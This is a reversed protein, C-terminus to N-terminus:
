FKTEEIKDLQKFQWIYEASEAASAASEAASAASAASWAADIDVKGTDAFQKTFSIAKKLIELDEKRACKLARHACRYSFMCCQRKNLEQLRKGIIWDIAGWEKRKILEKEIVSMPASKGYKEKFEALWDHGNCPNWKKLQAYTLTKM